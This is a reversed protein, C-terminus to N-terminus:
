ESGDGEVLSDLDTLSRVTRGTSSLWLHFQYISDLYQLETAPQVPAHQLPLLL